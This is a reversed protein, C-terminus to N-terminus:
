FHPNILENTIMKRIEWAYNWAGLLVPEDGLQDVPKIPIGTGPIYRNQKQPTSDVCYSINKEIGCHHILTTVKAAAGFLAVKKGDLKELLRTKRENVLETFGAWDIFESGIECALAGRQATVRISGGHMPIFEYDTLSFGFRRLFRQIPRLTHYDLHEHYIMDFTGAKLLAPFYQVEFVLAGEEKLLLEIGKFVDVLDNIHAFVNNAVILDVEGLARKKWRQAFDNTFYAAFNAEGTAAPDVGYAKFGAERLCKLYTGNNSGIELVTKAEPYHERLQKAVPALYTAVTEPTSYKYDEFLGDIVYRQQVHGCRTCESLELPYRKAQTDPEKAYNNAIPTPSLAFVPKM